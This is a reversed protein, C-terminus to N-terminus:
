QWDSSFDALAGNVCLTLSQEPSGLGRFFTGAHAAIAAPDTRYAITLYDTAYHWFLDGVLSSVGGPTLPYCFGKLDNINTM